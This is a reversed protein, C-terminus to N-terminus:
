IRTHFHPQIRSVSCSIRPKEKQQAWTYPGIVRCVGGDKGPTKRSAAAWTLRATPFFPSKQRQVGASVAKKRMFAEKKTQFAALRQGSCGPYPKLRSSAVGPFGADLCMAKSLFGHSCPQETSSRRYRRSRVALIDAPDATKRRVGDRRTDIDHLRGQGGRCGAM